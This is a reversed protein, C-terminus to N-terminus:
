AALRAIQEMLARLEADTAEDVGLARRLSAPTEARARLTCSIVREGSPTSLYATIRPGAGDREAGASAARELDVRLGAVTLPPLAVDRSVSRILEADLAEVLQMQVSEAIRDPDHLHDAIDSFVECLAGYESTAAGVVRSLEVPSLGLLSGATTSSPTSHRPRGDASLVVCGTYCAILQLMAQADSAVTAPPPPAHHWVIPRALLAPMSWRRMLAAALDTHTFELTNMEAQFLRSPTTCVALLKEYPEGLLRAMLPIGCDLMLGVVFAESALSPCKARALCAALCARYVSQGWVERAVRRGGESAAARSLYFGLAVAKVRELGLLVLARELKTVPTRQALLASNALRLLRGTLNWDTKIVEGYESIQADARRSLELVRLAVRPHSEVSMRDLVRGLRDHLDQVEAATLTARIKM